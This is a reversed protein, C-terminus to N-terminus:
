EGLEVNWYAFDVFHKWSEHHEHGFTLHAFPRWKPREPKRILKMRAEDPTRNGKKTNCRICSCVINEWTTLGGRDRPIVHDLNLDRKDFHKGCYHCTNKDRLYINIRSFRISKKPLRDYAILLLVRPVRIMKDVLGIREHHLEVSLDSWTNFDFTQYQADVAKAAGQYLM